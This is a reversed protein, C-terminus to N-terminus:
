KESNLINRGSQFLTGIFGAFSAYYVMMVSSFYSMARVKGALYSSNFCFWQRNYLIFGFYGNRTLDDDTLLNEVGTKLKWEDIWM